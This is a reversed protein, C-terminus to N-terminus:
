KVDVTLNGFHVAKVRDVEIPEDLIWYCDSNLGGRLPLDRNAIALLYKEFTDLGIIEGDEMELYICGWTYDNQSNTYAKFEELSDFHDPLTHFRLAVPTLTLSEIYTVDDVSDYSDTGYEPYKAEKGVELTLFESTNYDPTFEVEWTGKEFYDPKSYFSRLQLVYAEGPIFYKEGYIETSIEAIYTISIKNDMPNEDPLFKFRDNANYQVATKDEKKLYGGDTLYKRNMMDKAQKLIIGYGGFKYDREPFPSGDTKIVDMVIYIASDDGAIGTIEFDIDEFTDTILKVEPLSSYDQLLEAKEGFLGGFIKFADIEVAAMVTVAPIMCMLFLTMIFTLKQIRIRNIIHNRVNDQNSALKLISELAEKSLSIKDFADKYVQEM